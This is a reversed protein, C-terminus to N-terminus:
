ARPIGAMGNLLESAAAAIDPDQFQPMGGAYGAMGPNEMPPMQQVNQMDQPVQPMETMGMDGMGQMGEQPQVPKEVIIKDWDKIGSSMLWKKFLEAIDIDKGKSQFAEIIQPTELIAKLVATTNNQDQEMDAKMTSGAELEFDYDDDIEKKNIKVTGRDGSSFMDVVDPHVNKIDEIEEKFLRMEVDETMNSVTLSIWREYVGRLAEEMMVRDWEDRANERNAIFRIAEPTKGLNGKAQQSESTSTTGAQSEISSVLAGFTSQFTDIGKANINMTQVDANPQQMFWFEGAGWKISSPVVNEPNIHLPPFISYKVGEMYLNWLSNIALQLSKGRAFEGLGIPSDILPFAHKAVVPLMGDPYPDKVVRLIFPRSTKSDVRQPTWTIWQDKRYETFLEIKPYTVDGFKSPFFTKQVYSRKDDDDESDGGDGETLSNELRDVNMWYDKDQNKLWDISTVTRVTFWSADDLNRIEPQPFCDRIPLLLLEPGIYGNDQNVRWPVLAFMSGYVLSYLDWMRLKVLFPFQENSNKEYFKLLLNMLINKGLDDKSRAFAKGRPNQAMVRAVREFVMTSLRPDFIRSKTTKSLDDELKAILLSELDDWEGRRTELWDSSDSVHQQVEDLLNDNDTKSVKIPIAKNKAM